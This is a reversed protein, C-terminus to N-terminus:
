QPVFGIIWNCQHSLVALDNEGRKPLLSRWSIPVRGERDSRLGTDLCVCQETDLCIPVLFLLCSLEECLAKSPTM